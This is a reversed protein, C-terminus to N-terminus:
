AIRTASLTVKTLNCSYGIQAILYINQSGTSTYMGSTTLNNQCSGVVPVTLISFGNVLSNTTTNFGISSYSYNGYYDPIYTGFIMWVGATITIQMISVTWNPNSYSSVPNIGTITYGLQGSIPSTTGPGLTINNSVSLKGNITLPTNLTSGAQLIDFLYNSSGPPTNSFLLNTTYFTFGGAGYYAYNIFSTQGYDNKPNWAINLGAAASSPMPTITGSNTGIFVSGSSLVNNTFTNGSLLLSNISVNNFSANLSNLNM